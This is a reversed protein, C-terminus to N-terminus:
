DFAVPKVADDIPVAPIRALKWEDVEQVEM